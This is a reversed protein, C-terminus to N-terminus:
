YSMQRECFVRPIYTVCLLIFNLLQPIYLHWSPVRKLKENISNTRFQMYIQRHVQMFQLCYLVTYCQEGCSLGAVRISWTIYELLQCGVTTFARCTVSYLFMLYVCATMHCTMFGILVINATAHRSICVYQNLNGSGRSENEICCVAGWKPRRVVLRRVM